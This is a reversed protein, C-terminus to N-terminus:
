SNLTNEPSLQKKYDPQETVSYTEVSPQLDQEVAFPALHKSSVSTEREDPFHVDRAYHSNAELLDVERVMSDTKSNRAHNKLWVPGPKNLWTPISTGVISRQSFSFFFRKHPKM